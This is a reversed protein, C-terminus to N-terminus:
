ENLWEQVRDYLERFRQKFENTHAYMLGKQLLDRVTLLKMVKDEKKRERLALNVSFRCVIYFNEIDKSNFEFRVM